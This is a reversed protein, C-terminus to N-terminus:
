NQRGESVLFFNSVTYDRVTRLDPASAFSDERSGNRFAGRANYNAARYHNVSAFRLQRFIAM